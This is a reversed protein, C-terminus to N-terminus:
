WVAPTLSGGTGTGDREAGTYAQQSCVRQCLDPVAGYGINLLIERVAAGQSM